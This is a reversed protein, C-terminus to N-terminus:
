TNRSLNKFRSAIIKKCMLVPLGTTRSFTKAGMMYNRAHRVKKGIQREEKSIDRALKQLILGANVKHVDYCCKSGPLGSGCDCLGPKDADDFM